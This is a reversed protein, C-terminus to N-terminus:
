KGLRMAIAPTFHCFREVMFKMPFEVIILRKSVLGVIPLSARSLPARGENHVNLSYFFGKKARAPEQRMVCVGAYDTKRAQISAVALAVIAFM